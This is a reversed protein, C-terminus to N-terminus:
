AAAEDDHWHITPRPASQGPVPDAPQGLVMAVAVDYGAPLGVARRGEDSALWPLPSGVWCSGLGAAHAALALNQGARCCDFPAEPHHQRACMLVLVPAGWFVEFDDRSPWAWPHQPSQLRAQHQAAYAKARAGLGALRQAGDIVVFAWADDTCIPPRPVQVAHWLLDEVQARPLATPRYHRISRRGHLADILTMPPAGDPSPFDDLRQQWRTAAAVECRIATALTSGDLPKHLVRLGHRRVQWQVAIDGTVILAPLGPLLARLRRVLDIGDGQPLRQDIVAASFQLSPDAALALATAADAASHTHWGLARLLGSQAKLIDAEDDVLLVSQPPLATDSDEDPGAARAPAGPTPDDLAPLRLSFLTGRGSPGAQLKVALGLLRASRQVIALGLGLGRNRDRAPNGVQFFEEFVRERDAEAIGCGTDTVDVQWEALGAGAPLRQLALGVQGEGTFKFANDLLNRLLRQLLDADTCAWAPADPLALAFGLGQEAAQGAFEAHLQRLLAALDVDAPQLPVAGADLRSIDLLADLLGQSQVLARAIGQSLERLRPDDAQRALLMLTTANISLAHLPQRLDHSAAAFFRTRADAAGQARDREIALCAALQEKELSLRVLREMGQRQGRLSIVTMPVVLLSMGAMIWGLPGGRLLWGIVMLSLFPTVTGWYLRQDGTAAIVVIGAYHAALLMALLRTTDDSGILLPPLILSLWVSFAWYLWRVRQLGRAPDDQVLPQLRRAQVHSVGHSVLRLGLAAAVWPWSLGARLALVAWLVETPLLWTSRALWRLQQALALADARRAVEAEDPPALEAPAPEISAFGM